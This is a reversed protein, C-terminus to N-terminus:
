AAAYGPRKARSGTLAWRLGEVTWGVVAVFLLGLFIAAFFARRKMHRAYSALRVSVDM